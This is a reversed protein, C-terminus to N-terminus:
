RILRRLIAENKRWQKTVKVRLDLDVHYPFLDEIERESEKRIQKIVSGGRGILIGKQSDREVHIFARIWLREEEDPQAEANGTGPGSRAAAAGMVGSAGVIDAENGTGRREMDAIEVYIAHPVEQRVKMIAKERIIEAVRFEPDQDTYFDEPYSPEGEPAAEILRDILETVGDGTLASFAVIRSPDILKALLRHHEKVFSGEDCKNIGCIVRGTHGSVLHRLAEEEAGPRRTADVIYLILEVDDFSKVILDTMHRNFVRESTHFGPTDIFVLQGRQDTFIGRVSNRTTQPVPSVISVKHGCIRNLLTSKGSSPRGIISVFGSKM